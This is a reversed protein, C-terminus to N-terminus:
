RQSKRSLIFIMELSPHSIGSLLQTYSKRLPLSVSPSEKKSIVVPIANRQNESFPTSKATISVPRPPLSSLVLMM